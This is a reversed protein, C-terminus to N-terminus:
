EIVLEFKKSAVRAIAPIAYVLVLCIMLVFMLIIRVTPVASKDAICGIINFLIALTYLGYYVLGFLRNFGFKFKNLGPVLKVFNIVLEIIFLAGIVLTIITLVKAIAFCAGADMVGENMINFKFTGLSTGLFDLEVKFWITFLMLFTAVAVLLNFFRGKGIKIQKRKSENEAM